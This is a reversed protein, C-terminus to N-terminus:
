IEFMVYLVVRESSPEGVKSSETSAVGLVTARHRMWLNMYRLRTRRRWTIYAATRRFFSPGMLAARCFKWMVRASKGRRIPRRFRFHHMRLHRARKMLLVQTNYLQTFHQTHIITHFIDFTVYRLDVVNWFSLSLCFM